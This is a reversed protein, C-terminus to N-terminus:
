AMAPRLAALRASCTSVVVSCATLSASLLKHLGSVLDPDKQGALSFKGPPNLNCVYQQVLNQWKGAFRDFRCFPVTLRFALLTDAFSTSNGPPCDTCRQQGQSPAYKGQLHCHLSSVGARDLSWCSLTVSPVFM